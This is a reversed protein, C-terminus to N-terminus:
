FPEADGAREFVRKAKGVEQRPLAGPDALRVDVRLRLRQELRVRVRERLEERTGLPEALECHV